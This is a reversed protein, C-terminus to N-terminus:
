NDCSGTEDRHVPTVIVAAQRMETTQASQTMTKASRRPPLTGAGIRQEVTDTVASHREKDAAFASKSMNEKEEADDAGSRESRSRGVCGCVFTCRM